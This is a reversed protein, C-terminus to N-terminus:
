ETGGVPRLSEHWKVHARREKDLVASHCVPCVVLFARFFSKLPVPVGIREVRDNELWFQLTRAEAILATTQESSSTV